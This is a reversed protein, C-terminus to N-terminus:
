KSPRGVPEFSLVVVSKTAPGAAAGGAVAHGPVWLIQGNEAVVLPIAHRDARPVKRDVFIDQVKKRGWGYPLRVRDGPKWPRVVISAGVAEPRLRVTLASERGSLADADGPLVRLRGAAEPIELEGPVALAYSWSRWSPPGVPQPRAKIFLVRGNASLEMLGGALSRFLM